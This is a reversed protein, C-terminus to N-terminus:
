NRESAAIEMKVDKLARPWPGAKRQEQPLRDRAEIAMQRSPYVGALVVYLPKGNRLSQYLYLNSKNPQRRIYDQLSGKKSAALVQLTYDGDKRALLFAEDGLQRGKDGNETLGSVPVSATVDVVQTDKDVAVGESKEAVDAVVEAGLLVTVDVDTVKALGTETLDAAESNREVKQAAANLMSDLPRAVPIVPLPMQLPAGPAAASISAAEAIGEPLVAESESSEHPLMSHDINPVVITSTTRLPEPSEEQHRLEQEGDRGLLAWLLVSVLLAMAALHGLPLGSQNHTALIRAVFSRSDAVQSVASSEQGSLLSLAIGPNGMSQAWLRRVFESDWKGTPSTGHAEIFGALEKASFLPMDFDYLPVDVLRMEDVREVLGPRAAFVIRLGLGSSEHVQLLSLLAGLSSDDLQYADDILLLGQKGEVVLTESFHRLAVLLEGAGGGQYQLGLSQAISTLNDSIDGYEVVKYYENFELHAHLSQLERLLTTKGAGAPGVIVALGEGFQLLHSLQELLGQRDATSFFDDVSDSSCQNDVNVDLDLQQNKM